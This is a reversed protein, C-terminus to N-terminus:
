KTRHRCEAPRGKPTVERLVNRGVERRYRVRVTDPTALSCGACCSLNKFRTRDNWVFVMPQANSLPKITVTRESCDIKDLTGRVLHQRPPAGQGATIATLFAGAAAWIALFQSRM